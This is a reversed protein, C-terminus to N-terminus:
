RIRVTRTQGDETWSLRSGRLQLSQPDIGKGEAVLDYQRTTTDTDADLKHVRSASRGPARCNSGVRGLEADSQPYPCEIWAVARTSKVRLSTISAEDTQISVLRGDAASKRLDTVVVGTTPNEAARSSYGAWGLYSGGVAVAPPPFWDGDSDSDAYLRPKGQSYLCGFLAGRGRKRFATGLRGKAVVTSGEPRCKARRSDSGAAAPGLGVVGVLSATVVAILTRARM